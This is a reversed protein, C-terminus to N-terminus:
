GATLMAELQTLSDVAPGDAPQYGFGIFPIGAARSARHDLDSDGIYLAAQPEIQFLELARHLMDPHPKPRPVDGATVMHQFYPQLQFHQSVLEMTGTRNTAIGLRHYEALRGLIAHLGPRPEMLPIFQRYDITGAYALVEEYPQGRGFFYEFVQHSSYTHLIALRKQDDAEVVPRGFFEFIHNYFALNAAESAFLVGDCDFIIVRLAAEVMM